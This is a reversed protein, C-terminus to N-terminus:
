AEATEPLPTAVGLQGMLGLMDEERWYEAVKGGALRLIAIGTLRFRRGTAPIGFLDGTHRGEYAYRVVVRDSGGVVDDLAVRAESFATGLAAIVIALGAPGPPIGLAAWPHAIFDATVWQCAADADFRVFTAELFHEVRQLATNMPARWGPVDLLEGLRNLETRPLHPDVQALVGEFAPAPMSARVGTLLAARENPTLHPVVWRAGLGMHAASTAAVIADHIAALQSDSFRAWLLENQQSEELEMHVLNEGVFVALARYLCAAERDRQAGSTCAVADMGARLQEFASAHAAHEEAIRRTAGPQSAELAAHVFQDEKTLHGACFDLLDDLQELVCKVQQDDACDLRGLEVMLTCLYARLGKHIQSYLDFRGAPTSAPSSTSTSTPTTPM